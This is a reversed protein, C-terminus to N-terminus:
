AEFVFIRVPERWCAKASKMMTLVKKAPKRYLTRARCGLTAPSLHNEDYYFGKIASTCVLTKVIIFAKAHRCAIMAYCSGKTAPTRVLNRVIPVEFFRVGGVVQYFGTTRFGTVM